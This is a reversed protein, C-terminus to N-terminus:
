EGAAGALAAAAEAPWDAIDAPWLNPRAEGSVAWAAFVGETAPHLYLLAWDTDCTFKLCSQGLYGEATLDGSGLDSIREAFDPYEAGLGAQLGALVPSLRLAEVPHQLALDPVAEWGRDAAFDEPLAETLGTVPNWIWVEGPESPLPETSFVLADPQVQMGFERCSDLPGFLTPPKDEPLALVFPAAGCANGGAGAAGTVVTVGGVTLVADDLYIAGNEHLVAGDVALTASGMDDDSVVIERGAVSLGEALAASGFLGALLGAGCVATRM